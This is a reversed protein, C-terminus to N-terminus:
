RLLDISEEVEDIFNHLYSPIEDRYPDIYWTKPSAGEKFYQVYFGGQDTCNPCGFTTESSSLLQQPLSNTLDKVKQFDSNSQLVFDFNDGSNNYPIRDKYLQQNTLKYYPNCSPTLCRGVFRGFILHDSDELVIPDVQKDQCSLLLLSIGLLFYRLYKMITLPQYLIILM